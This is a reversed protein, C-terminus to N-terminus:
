SIRLSDASTTIVVGPIETGEIGEVAEGNELKKLAEKIADMKAAYSTQIDYFEDPLKSADPVSILQRGKALTYTYFPSRLSTKGSSELILKIHQKVAKTQNEWMKRRKQAQVEREKLVAEYGEFVSVLEMLNDMKDTLTGVIGEVTDAIDEASLQGSAALEELNRLDSTLDLATVRKQKQESVKKVPAKKSEIEEVAPAATTTKKIAM